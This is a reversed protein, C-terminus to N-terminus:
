LRIRRIEDYAEEAAKQAAMLDPSEGTRLILFPSWLYPGGRSGAPPNESRDAPNFWVRWSVVFRSTDFICIAVSQGFTTGVSHAPNCKTTWNM